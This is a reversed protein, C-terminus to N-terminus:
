KDSGIVKMNSIYKYINSETSNVKDGEEM